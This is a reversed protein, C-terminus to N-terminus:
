QNNLVTQPAPKSPELQASVKQIQSAQETLSAQSPKFKRKSGNVGAGIYVNNDGTANREPNRYPSLIGGLLFCQSTNM